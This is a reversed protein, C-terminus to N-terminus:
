THTSQTRSRIAITQLTVTPYSVFRASQRRRVHPSVVATTQKTKSRMVLPVNSGISKVTQLITQKGTMGWPMATPSPRHVRKEVPAPITTVQQTPAIPLLLCISCSPESKRIIMTPLSDMTKGAPRASQMPRVPLQAVATTQKTRLQMVPLVNSGTSKPM